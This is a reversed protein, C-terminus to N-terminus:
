KKKNKRAELKDRLRKMEPSDDDKDIMAGVPNLYQELEDGGFERAVKTILPADKEWELDARDDYANGHVKGDRNFIVTVGQYDIGNTFKLDANKTSMVLIGYGETGFFMIEEDDNRFVESDGTAFYKENDKMRKLVSRNRSGKKDFVRAKVEPAGRPAPKEAKARVHVRGAEFLEAIKM